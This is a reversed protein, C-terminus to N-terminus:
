EQSKKCKGILSAATLNQLSNIECIARRAQNYIRPSRRRERAQNYNGWFWLLPSLLASWLLSGHKLRDASYSVDSFGAYRLGYDWYQVPFPNIHGNCTGADEPLHSPLYYKYFCGRFLFKIRSDMNHINPVSFLFYGGPKLSRYIEELMQYPSRLHELVEMATVIDYMGGQLDDPLGDNLDVERFPIDAEYGDADIDIGLLNEEIPWCQKKYHEAVKKLLAGTGCGVDLIRVPQGSMCSLILRQMAANVTPTSRISLNAVM